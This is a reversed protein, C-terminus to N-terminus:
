AKLIMDLEWQLLSMSIYKKLDDIKVARHLIM